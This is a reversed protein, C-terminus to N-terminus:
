EATLCFASERTTGSPRLRHGLHDRGDKRGFGAAPIMGTVVNGEEAVTGAHTEELVDDVCAEYGPRVAEHDLADEVPLGDAGIERVGPPEPLQQEGARGQVDGPV